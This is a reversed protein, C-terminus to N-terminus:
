DRRRWFLMGGGAAMLTAALGVLPLVEAGTYALEDDDDDSAATTTSPASPSESTSTTATPETTTPTQSPSVSESPSESPTPETPTATPETPTSTPETPTVTPETPTATPETPTTTPETPTTTPETPTATPETPTTTPETPTTTPETPTTTPETPTTTPETPTTTPETPTATPETPTTTPETPTTTPETPTATPETPTATPETPTTTPETPTATPETPTATPETPTATPETPTATPETPTATPEPAAEFSVAVAGSVTVPAETEFTAFVQCPTALTSESQVWSISDGAIADATASISATGVAGSTLCLTATTGSNLTLTSGSLLADGGCLTVSGGTVTLTIPQGIINTTVTVEVSDGVDAATAASTLALQTVASALALLTAQRSASMNAACYGTVVMASPDSICWVLLQRATRTASTANSATTVTQSGVASVSLDHRIIYSILRLQDQTLGSNAPVQELSGADVLSGDAETTACPRADHDTCYMWESVPGVGEVYRVGCSPVGGNTGSSSYLHVVKGANYDVLRQGFVRRLNTVAGSASAPNSTTTGECLPAIFETASPDPVAAQATGSAPAFLAAVAAM